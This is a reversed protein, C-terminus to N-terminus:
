LVNKRLDFSAPQVEFAKCKLALWDKICLNFMMLSFPSEVGKQVLFILENLERMVQMSLGNQEKEQQDKEDLTCRFTFLSHPGSDLDVHKFFVQLLQKNVVVFLSESGASALKAKIEELSIMKASSEFLSRSMLENAEQSLKEDLAFDPLMESAKANFYEVKDQSFLLLGSPIQDV